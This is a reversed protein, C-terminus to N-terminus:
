PVIRRPHLAPAIINNHANTQASPIHHCTINARRTPRSQNQMREQYKSTAIQSNSINFNQRLDNQNKFYIFLKAWKARYRRLRNQFLYINQRLLRVFNQFLYINQRM